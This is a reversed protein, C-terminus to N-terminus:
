HPLRDRIVGYVYTGFVASLLAVLMISASSGVLAYLPGPCAGTLDWGFGFILGGFINGKNFEKKEITIEEGNITKVKLKKLIQISILGVLIASTLVGYMHFSQFRFMEQIRYWSVVESKILIFGFIMGIFL